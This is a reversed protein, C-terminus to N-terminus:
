MYSVRPFPAHKYDESMDHTIDVHTRTHLLSICVSRSRGAIRNRKLRIGGTRLLGLSRVERMDGRREHCWVM